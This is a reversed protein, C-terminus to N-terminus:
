CKIRKLFLNSNPNIQFASKKFPNFNDTYGFNSNELNDKRKLLMNKNKDNRKKKQKILNSAKSKIKNRKRNEINEIRNKIDKVLSKTEFDKLIDQSDVNEFYSILEDDAYTQEKEIENESKAWSPKIRKHTISTKPRTSKENNKLPLPRTVKVVGNSSVSNVVDKILEEYEELSTEPLIQAQRPLNNGYNRIQKMFSESDYQLNNNISNRMRKQSERIKLFKINDDLAESLAEEERERMERNLSNLWM